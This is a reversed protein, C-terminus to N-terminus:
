PIRECLSFMQELGERDVDNQIKEKFSDMLNEIKKYYINVMQNISGFKFPYKQAPINKCIPCALKNSRPDKINVLIIADRCKKCLYVYLYKKRMAYKFGPYFVKKAMVVRECIKVFVPLKTL